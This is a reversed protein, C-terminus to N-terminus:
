RQRDAIDRDSLLQRNDPFEALGENLIRRAEEFNRRNWAAAFRNHYDAVLNDRYTRLAQELERNAGYRSLAGEIYQIAARWDRGPAACLVAATKQIAYTRLEAARSETIVGAARESTISAIVADGDAASRIQNARSLLESETVSTALQAYNAPTLYQRQSDLFTKAATLNHANIYRLVRNNAAAMFIEQWQEPEPYVPSALAAWRLCDEEKNAKLLSASYNILRDYLSKVPDEFLAENQNTTLRIGQLNGTLLAARDIAVPVADAFNNARELDSIRNNLILSVLQIKSITQRDRYNQPPVYSFGTVKGMEDHFDRKNGPDFGFRNTTEVDIDNGDIHAIVLAHERTIVGSTNIGASACLITYLVASSVCNYRGNSFLTDIRTQYLSYSRLYNRHMFTLIYEAKERGSAPLDGANNLTEVAARIREFGALATDGSAWLSIQALETWTYGNSRRGLEYYELAKPDPNLRPFQGQARADPLTIFFLLTIVISAKIRV